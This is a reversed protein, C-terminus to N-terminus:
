AATAGDHAPMQDWTRGELERGGAKRTRGGWQKFLFPVESAQCTDRIETVWEAEVLRAHPGSEGRAIVRGIGDLDLSSLPGILPECSIPRRPAARVASGPVDHNFQVTARRGLSM